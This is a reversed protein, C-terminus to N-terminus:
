IKEGYENKYIKIILLFLSLLLPGFILGIFGFLPVGIIVGILTILPHVNDIRKLFFLRILNDTSGVIIIGYLLIGWAQFADGNALTLIFAPIIGLMGGVFPIMSGITVMVFWFVPNEIGFIFFGIIAIIGQAIAVLPIGIANSRVMSVVDESIIKINDKALPIYEYLTERLKRRNTLMYYLLFYMIFVSLVIEFTSGAVSQLKDSIFTSLQSTEIQSSLDFGLYYELKELQNKLINIIEQSNKGLNSVKNGIMLIIGSIPILICVISLILLVIAALVPNWGKSVLKKMPKRLLVYITIAGLVGSLYPSMEFVLLGAICIIVLLLFLQNIIKQSIYKM